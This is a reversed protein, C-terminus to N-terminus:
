QAHKLCPCKTFDMEEFSKLIEDEGELELSHPLIEPVKECSLDHIEKNKLDVVFRTM